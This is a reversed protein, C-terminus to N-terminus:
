VFWHVFLHDLVKFFCKCKNDHFSKLCLLLECHELIINNKM